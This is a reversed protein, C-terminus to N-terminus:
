SFTEQSKRHKWIMSAAEGKTAAARLGNVRLYALQKATPPVRMRIEREVRLITIMDSAEGAFEPMAREKAGLKLLMERQKDTIPRSRWGAERLIFQEPVQLSEETGDDLEVFTIDPFPGRRDEANDSSTDGEDARWSNRRSRAAFLRDMESEVLGYALEFPVPDKLIQIPPQDRRGERQDYFRITCRTHGSSEWAVLYYGVRPIAMVWGSSTERWNYRSRSREATLDFEVTLGVDLQASATEEDEDEGTDDGNGESSPTAAVAGFGALTALQVPSHRESNGVCDIIICETKGPHLRLGRGVCQIYLAQSQTPRAMLIAEISTDDYGETAIEVNVLIQTQGERFRKFTADRERASMKDSVHEAVYGADNFEDRITTAHAVDVAFVLTKRNHGYARWAEVIARNIHPANMAKSLSKRQYDGGESRVGDLDIRLPVRYGKPPVLHGAQIMHILNREYVIRDFVTDLATGDARGPTATMGLIKVQPNAQRIREIIRMWQPSVAHHAEDCIVIDPPSPDNMYGALRSGQQSGLTQVSAVTLDRRMDNQSALMVGVSPTHVRGSTVLFIKEATQRVLEKRHALFLSRNGRTQYFWDMLYAAVITKGAGTPLVVLPALVGEHWSEIVAQVCGLQYDRLQVVGQTKGDPLLVAPKVMKFVNARVPDDVHNQEVSRVSIHLTGEGGPQTTWQQANDAHWPTRVHNSGPPLLVFPM